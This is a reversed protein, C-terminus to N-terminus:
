LGAGCSFNTWVQTAGTSGSRMYFGALGVTPRTATSDTVTTTVVGNKSLTITNSSVGISASMRVVDNAVLTVGTNSLVTQATDLREIRIEPVAGNFIFCYGPNDMGGDLIAGGSAIANTGPSSIFTMQVFQTGLGPYLLRPFARPAGITEGAGGTDAINLRNTAFDVTFQPSTIAVVGVGGFNQHYWNPGMAATTQSSFDDSFSTLMNVNGGGGLVSFRVALNRPRKRREEIATTYRGKRM